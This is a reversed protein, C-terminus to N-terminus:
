MGLRRWERREERREESLPRTVTPLQGLEMLVALPFSEGLHDSVTGMTPDKAM